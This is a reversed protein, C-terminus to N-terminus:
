PCLVVRRNGENESVELLEVPVSQEATLRTRTAQAIITAAMVKGDRLAALLMSPSFVVEEVASRSQIQPSVQVCTAEALVSLPPLRMMFEVGIVPPPPTVVSSTLSPPASATSSIRHKGADHGPEQPGSRAAPPYYVFVDEGEERVRREAEQMAASIHRLHLLLVLGRSTGLAVLPDYASKAVCTVCVAGGDVGGATGAGSSSKSTGGTGAGGEGYSPGLLATLVSALCLTGIVALSGTSMSYTAMLGESSVILVARLSTLYVAYSPVFPLACRATVAGDGCMTDLILVEGVLEGAGPPSATTHAGFVAPPNVPSTFLSRVFGAPPLPAATSAAAGPIAARLAGGSVRVRPHPHPEWALGVVAMLSSRDGCFTCARIGYPAFLQPFVFAPAGEVATAKFLWGAVSGDSLGAGIIYGNPSFAVPTVAYRERRSMSGLASLPHLSAASAASGGAAAVGFLASSGPMGSGWAAWPSPNPIAGVAAATGGVGGCGVTNHQGHRLTCCFSAVCEQSAFPYLDLHGDRHRALFFPLHPHSSPMANVAVACRPRSQLVATAAVAAVLEPTHAAENHSAALQVRKQQTTLGLTFAATALNRETSQSWLAEENDGALLERFGHGVVTGAETSCVVSDCSSLDFQVGTVSHSHQTLILRDTLLPRQRSDRGMDQTIGLLLWRLLAHTHHRRMWALQLFSLAPCYMKDAEDEIRRECESSPWGVGAPLMTPARTLSSGLSSQSTLPATHSRQLLASPFDSSLQLMSEFLRRAARHSATSRRLLRQVERTPSALQQCQTLALSPLTWFLELQTTCLGLLLMTNEEIWTTTSAAQSSRRSSNSSSPADHRLPSSSSAQPRDLGLPSASDGAPNESTAALAAAETVGRPGALLTVLVTRMCLVDMRVELFVGNPDTLPGPAYRPLATYMQLMTEEALANWQATVDLLMTSLLVRRQVLMAQAAPTLPDTYIVGADLARQTTPTHTATQLEVRALHRLHELLRLQLQSQCCSLLFSVQAADTIVSSIATGCCLLGEDEVASSSGDEYELSYDPRDRSDGVGPFSAGSQSQSREAAAAAAALAEFMSRHVADDGGNTEDDGKSGSDASSAKSGNVHDRRAAGGQQEEEAECAEKYHLEISRSVLMFFAILPLYLPSPKETRHSPVATAAAADPSSAPPSPASVSPATREFLDRLLGAQVAAELVGETSVPIRQLSLLLLYNAGELAVKGLLLHLLPICLSYWGEAACKMPEYVSGNLVPLSAAGPGTPSAPASARRQPSDTASGAAVLPELLTLAEGAQATSSARNGFTSAASSWSAVAATEAPRAGSADLILRRLLQTLLDQFLLHSSGVPSSAPSAASTATTAGAYASAAGDALTSSTASRLSSASTFCLLMRRLLDEYSFSATTQSARNPEHAAGTCLYAYQIEAQVAADAEDSLVDGESEETATGQSGQHTPGAAGGKAESQLHVDDDDDDDSDFGRFTLTGTNFDAAMKAQSPPRSANGSRLGQGFLAKETESGTALERRRAAEARLGCLLEEASRYHLYGNLNLRHALCYRGLRLLCVVERAPSLFQDARYALAAVGDRAYRLASLVEPHATPHAAIRQLAEIQRQVAVEQSTQPTVDVWSLCAAEWMDLPGCNDVEAARQRVYWQLPTEQQGGSSRHAATAADATCASTTTNLADASDVAARLVFLALFPDRCRQLLVQVASEVDGALLFFAAGYQPLNKQIAAYANASAAARHHEDHAFDRRFFDFLRLNNQTKALAALTGVKRAACYMLACAKLDKTRQYQHRAVRDAITRLDAASRLWFAVGSQEVQEWSIEGTGTNPSGAAGAGGDLYIASTKDFLLSVLTSQSDSMAAWLYAATSVTRTATRGVEFYLVSNIPVGPIVPAATSGTVSIDINPLRLRRGLSMFRIFFLYRAAAEDVSRSLPLTDRLAQLICLLTLQEHSSLGTLTVQPLVETLEAFLNGCTATLDYLRHAVTSPTASSTTNSTVTAPVTELDDQLATSSLRPPTVRHLVDDYLMVQPRGHFGRSVASTCLRRAIEDPTQSFLIGLSRITTTTTDLAAKASNLVLTLVKALVSWRAMGIMQMVADPHYQPMGTLVSSRSQEGGCGIDDMAPDSPWRKLDGSSSLLPMQRLHIFSNDAAAYFVPRTAARRSSLNVATSLGMVNAEWAGAVEMTTIATVAAAEGTVPNPHSCPPCWTPDQLYFYGDGAEEKPAEKMCPTTDSRFGKQSARDGPFCRLWREFRLGLSAASHAADGPNAHAANVATTRRLVVVEGSASFYFTEVETLTAELVFASSPPAADGDPGSGNSTIKAIHAQTTAGSASTATLSQVAPCGYLYLIGTARLNPGGVSLPLPAAAADHAPCTADRCLVGVVIDNNVGLAGKVEEVLMVSAERSPDGEAGARVASAASAGEPLPLYQLATLRAGERREPALPSHVRVYPQAIAANDSVVECQVAKKENRQASIRCCLRYAACVDRAEASACLPSTLSATAGRSWWRRQLAAPVDVYEAAVPVFPIQASGAAVLKQVPALAALCPARIRVVAAPAAAYMTPRDTSLGLCGSSATLLLAVVGDETVCGSSLVSPSPLATPSALPPGKTPAISPAASAAEVRSALGDTAERGRVTDPATELPGYKAILQALLVGADQAAKLLAPMFKLKEPCKQKMFSAVDAESIATFRAAGSVTQGAKDAKPAEPPEATGADTVGAVSVDTLPAITLVRAQLGFPEVQLLVVGWVVRAPTTVASSTAAVSSPPPLANSPVAAAAAPSASHSRSSPAASFAFSSPSAKSSEAHRCSGVKGEGLVQTPGVARPLCGTPSALLGVLLTTTTGIATQPTNVDAAGEANLEPISSIFRLSLLPACGLALYSEVRYVAASLDVMASLLVGSAFRLVLRYRRSASLLVEVAQPQKSTHHGLEIPRTKWTPLVTVRVLSGYLHLLPRLLGTCALGVARQKAFSAHKQRGFSYSSSRVTGDGEVHLFEMRNDISNAEASRSFNPVLSTHMEAIPPPPEAGWTTMTTASVSRASREPTTSSTKTTLIINGARPTPGASPATSTYNLAIVGAPVLQVLNASSKGIAGAANGAATIGGGDMVCSGDYGSGCLGWGGDTHEEMVNTYRRTTSLSQVTYLMMHSSEERPHCCTVCLLTHSSVRHWRMDSIRYIGVSATLGRKALTIFPQQAAGASTRGGPPSLPYQSAVGGSFAPVSVFVPHNTPSFALTPTASSNRSDNLMGRVGNAITAPIYKAPGEGFTPDAAFSSTATSLATSARWCSNDGPLGTDNDQGDMRLVRSPFVVISSHGLALAAHHNVRCVALSRYAGLSRWIVRDPVRAIATAGATAHPSSPAVVSGCNGLLLLVTETDLVVCLATDSVFDMALVVSPRPPVAIRVPVILVSKGGASDGSGVAAGTANAPLTSSTPMCYPPPSASTGCVATTSATSPQQPSPDLSFAARRWRLRGAMGFHSQLHRDAGKAGVPLPSSSGATAATSNRLGLPSGPRPQFCSHGGRAAPGSSTLGANGASAAPPGSGVVGDEGDRATTRWFSSPRTDQWLLGSDDYEFIFIGETIAVAIRLVDDTFRCICVVYVCPAKWAPSSAVTSDETQRPKKDFRTDHPGVDATSHTVHDFLPGSQAMVRGNKLILLRNGGTILATYLDGNHNSYHTDHTCGQAFLVRASTHPAAPTSPQM